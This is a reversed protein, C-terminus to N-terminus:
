EGGAFYEPRGAPWSTGWMLKGGDITIVTGTMYEAAPSSMYILAEAFCFADTRRKMPNTAEMTRRGDEPYQRMGETTAGAVALNNVRINYPAWELAVSRSAAIVGARAAMTHATQPCGREVPAVVNVISGPQKRDRWARAAAQMMWWTGNLNTDIVALWGKPRIDLADQPFQGGANNVLVDMSGLEDYVQQIFDKAVDPDRISMARTIVKRGTMKNILDATETLKEQRIIANDLNGGVM